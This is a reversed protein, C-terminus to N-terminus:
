RGIRRVPAVEPAVQLAPALTPMMLSPRGGVPELGVQMVLRRLPGIAALLSLGVARAAHPVVGFAGAEALLSRNFGDVVATRSAVDFRRARDYAAMLDPAGIDRGEKLAQGVLGALEAVDRMGLNLGQAGIPPLVHGAEGVLATRNGALPSATVGTLPYAARPGLTSITGLLGGLHRTLEHMFAQDSLEILRAAEAHREVFVLSSAFPAAFPPSAAMAATLPVTTLPGATRHFETSIGGHDRGHGFAVAIATQPYDWASVRADVAARGISRRGDAAVALRARLATGEATTLTVHDAMSDIATVGATDIFTAGSLRDFAHGLERVLAANAVNAGFADRGLEAAHFVVEPARLVGGAADVLRIGRLPACYPDLSKLVGLNGLFDLSPALLATTRTDATRAALSARPAALAVHAGAQALALGATLGAPGAGIIVVDYTQM